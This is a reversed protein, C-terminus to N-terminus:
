YKADEEPPSPDKHNYMKNYFKTFNANISACCGVLKLNGSPVVDVGVIMTKAFQPISVKYIELGVKANMTKLLNSLVGMPPNRLNNSVIFQSPIGKKDLASKIQPKFHKNFEDLIVCVIRSRTIEV